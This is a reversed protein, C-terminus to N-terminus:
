CRRPSRKDRMEQAWLNNMLDEAKTLAREM